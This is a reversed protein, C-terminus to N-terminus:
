IRLWLCTKDDDMEVANIASPYQIMQFVKKASAQGKGVEGFMSMASAMQFASFMIPFIAGFVAKGDIPNDSDKTLFVMYGGLFFIGGLVCYQTFQAFGTAMANKFENCTSRKHADKLFDKYLDVMLYEYGFSQVTRFNSIADGCLVQAEKNSEEADQMQKKLMTQNLAGAAVMLPMIALSCLAVQWCIYCGIVVGGLLAFLGELIPGIAEVAAM